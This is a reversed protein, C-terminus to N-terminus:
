KLANWKAFETPRYVAHIDVMARQRYFVGRGTAGTGDTTNGEVLWISDGSVHDVIGTHTPGNYPYWDVLVVDGKRIEGATPTTDLVGAERLRAVYQDFHKKYPVGAPYDAHEFVWEVFVACWAYDGNIWTNYKNNRWSPERYGVENHAVNMIKDVNFVGGVSLFKQPTWAFTDNVKVLWWGNRQIRTFKGITGFKATVKVDYGSGPGARLGLNQATVGVKIKKPNPQNATLYAEPTWAKTGGLQVQTWRGKTQGTFTAQAGRYAVVKVRNDNSPGNRLKLATGTVWVKQGATLTANNVTPVVASAVSTGAQTGTQTAAPAAATASTGAALSATVLLGAILGTARHRTPRASTITM